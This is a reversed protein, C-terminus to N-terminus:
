KWSFSISLMLLSFRELGVQEAGCQAVEGGRWQGWQRSVKWAANEKYANLNGNQQQWRKDARQNCGFFLSAAVAVVVLFSQRKTFRNSPMENSNSNNSKKNNNYNNHTDHAKCLYKWKERGQM